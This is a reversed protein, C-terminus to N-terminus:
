LRGSPLRKEFSDILVKRTKLFRDESMQVDNICVFDTTPSALFASIKTASAAALSFHKNSHRRNVAQGKYFLYDLFLYHILNYAERVPSISEHIQRAM